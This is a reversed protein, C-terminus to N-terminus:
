IRVGGSLGGRGLNIYVFGLWALAAVAFVTRWFPVGSLDLLAHPADAGGVGVPQSVGQSVRYAPRTIPQNGPGSEYRATAGQDTAMGGGRIVRGRVSSM